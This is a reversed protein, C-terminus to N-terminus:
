IFENWENLTMNLGTVQYSAGPPVISSVTVATDVPVKNFQSVTYVGVSLALASLTASTSTATVSVQITKGTSNTYPTGLDRDPSIYNTVTSGLAGKSNLQTQINSSAGSLYNVEAATVTIGDLLTNQTPTLHLAADGTHSSVVSAAAYYTGEQGDLTDADLGSGSGDVTKVKTLVDSATYSSSSLKTNIQAQINSSAGSLYNVETSTATVADIWTNQSSTLHKTADAAHTTLDSAVAYYSGHQGDLKDADFGVALSNAPVLNGSGLPDIQVVKGANSTVDPMKDFAQRILRFEARIASSLGQSAQFPKGSETYFDNAM